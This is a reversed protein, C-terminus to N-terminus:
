VDEEWLDETLKYLYVSIASPIVIGNWIIEAQLGCAFIIYMSKGLEFPVSVAALSSSMEFSQYDNKIEWDHQRNDCYFFGPSCGRESLVSIIM